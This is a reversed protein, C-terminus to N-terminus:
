VDALDPYTDTNLNFPNFAVVEHGMARRAAACIAANQGSPDPNLVSADRLGSILNPLEIGVGKGSGTPAIVTAHTSFNYTVGQGKSGNDPNWAQGLMLEM